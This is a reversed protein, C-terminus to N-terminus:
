ATPTPALEGSQAAMANWWRRLAGGTLHAFVHLFMPLAEATWQGGKGSVALAWFRESPVGDDVPYPPECLIWPFPIGDHLDRSRHGFITTVAANLTEWEFRSAGGEPRIEPPGPDFRKLFSLLKREVNYLGAVEAAITRAVDAPAQLLARHLRPRHRKLQELDSDERRDDFRNAAVELAGILKIWAVRPDADALWLGDVYQRAARVLAVADGAPIQPYTSLLREANPLATREAIRHIM